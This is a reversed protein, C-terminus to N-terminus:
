KCRSNVDDVCLAIANRISVYEAHLNVFLEESFGGAKIMEPLNGMFPHCVPGPCLASMEKQWQVLKRYRDTHTYCVSVTLESACSLEVEFSAEFSLCSLAWHQFTLRARRHIKLKCIMYLIFAVAAGSLGQKKTIQKLADMKLSGDYISPRPPRPLFHQSRPHLFSFGGGGASCSSSLVSCFAGPVMTALGVTPNNFHPIYHEIRLALQVVERIAFDRSCCKWIRWVPPLRFLDDYVCDDM